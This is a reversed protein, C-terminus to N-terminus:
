TGCASWASTMQYSAVQPRVVFYPSAAPPSSEPPRTKGPIVSRVSAERFERVRYWAGAPTRIVLYPGKDGKWDAVHCHVCDSLSARLIPHDTCVDGVWCVLAKGTEEAERLAADFDKHCSAPPTPTAVGRDKCSSRAREVELLARAKRARGDDSGSLSSVTLVFAALTASIRM